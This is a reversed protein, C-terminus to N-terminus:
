YLSLIVFWSSFFLDLIGNKKGEKRLLGTETHM